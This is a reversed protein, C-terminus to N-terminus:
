RTRLVLKGRLHRSESIRHAEAAQALSFVHIDPPRVAGAEILDALRNMAESSRRVPPKLARLDQRSPNPPPGGIFAARGGSKLVALTRESVDGGVTDLAADCNEVADTFDVNTYDIVEDAGLSRVYAHNASSATTIVRAGIHKALQIAFGAVGGAGGQILITEGPHLQLTEELASVATLGTLAMAAAEVHSLNQPKRGVIAAPLAIKEAYGGDRGQLAVAFVPDGPRFAAVRAGVAAVTGSVDRGLIHPFTVDAYSGRRQKWDAANVSAAHVDILVEDGQPVPDPRDGYTLVEPGGFREIFVAKM